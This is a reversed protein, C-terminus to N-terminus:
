LSPEASLLVSQEEEPGSNLEWCGRPAECGDIIPDSARKPTDSSLPPTNLYM